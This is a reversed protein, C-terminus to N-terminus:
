FCAYYLIWKRAKTLVIIFKGTGYFSCFELSSNAESSLSHEM